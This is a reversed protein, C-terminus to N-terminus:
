IVVKEVIKEEIRNMEDLDVLGQSINDDVIFDCYM